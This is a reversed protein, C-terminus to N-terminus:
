TYDRQGYLSRIYTFLIKCSKHCVADQILFMMNLRDLYLCSCQLGLSPTVIDITYM